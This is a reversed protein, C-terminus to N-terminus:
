CTSSTPDNGCERWGNGHHVDLKVLSCGSLRARAHAAAVAVPTSSALDMAPHPRPSAPGSWAVGRRIDTDIMGTDVVSLCAGAARAAAEVSRPGYYTDADLLGEEGRLRGASGSGVKDHVRELEGPTAERVPVPKWTVPARAVAARAAVLRAPREPHYSEASGGLVHLDFLPDDVLWAIPTEATM